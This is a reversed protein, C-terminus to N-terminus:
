YRNYFANIRSVTQSYIPKTFELFLTQPPPPIAARKRTLALQESSLAREDGKYTAWVDQWVFTGPMKQQNLIRNTRAELITMDLLGGSSITTEFISLHATVTGYVPRRGATEGLLVNDKRIEEVREKVYTQGVVFDDFSLIMIHDPKIKQKNAEEPRLFMVFNKSEYNMMFEDLKSQFYDNSLKYINSNVRVPEVIVKLTAAFYAEDLLKRTDKYDPEFYETLEFYRYAVKASERNGEALLKKAANYREAAAQQRAFNLESDYFKHGSVISLCASCSELAESLKNLDEYSYVIEDWKFSASSYRAREIKQLHNKVALNFGESLAARAKSHSSKSKLRNIANYVAQDYNGKELQKWGSSCSQFFLTIILIYATKCYINM